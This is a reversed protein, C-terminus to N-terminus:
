KRPKLIPSLVGHGVVTAGELFLDLESQSLEVEGNVERLWLSAFRGQDLRKMFITMGTGDHRLVKCSRRTRNLFLFADGEMPDRKMANVVLGYLGNYGKRLDAPHVYAFVQRRKM